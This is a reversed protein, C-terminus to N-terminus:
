MMKATITKKTEDDFYILVNRCFILDFKGMAAYDDLLNQLRFQVMARINEKM